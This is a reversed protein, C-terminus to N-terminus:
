PAFDEEKLFQYDNLYDLFKRGKLPDSPEKSRECSAVLLIWDMSGCETETLNTKICIIRLPVPIHALHDTQIYRVPVKVYNLHM